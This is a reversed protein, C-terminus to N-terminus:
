RAVSSQNQIGLLKATQLTGILITYGNKGYGSNLSFSM